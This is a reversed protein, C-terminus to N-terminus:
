GRVILVPKPCHHLVATSVSGYLASEVGGQGRNGLVVVRADREVAASVIEERPRGRAILPEADFGAAAALEVGEAASSRALDVSIEDFEKAFGTSYAVASSVPAVLSPTFPEWVCMVIAPGGGLLEGATQIAQRAPGSGDYGILVPGGGAM